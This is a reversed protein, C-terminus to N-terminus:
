CPFDLASVGARLFELRPLELAPLALGLFVWGRLWSLSLWNQASAGQLTGDLLSLAM